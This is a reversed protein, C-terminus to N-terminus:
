DQSGKRRFPDIRITHKRKPKEFSQYHIFSKCTHTSYVNGYKALWKVIDKDPHDESGSASIYSKQPSLADIIDDNLNNRSGHHPVKLLDVNRLWQKKNLMKLLSEKSADGTFLLKKGDGPKYLVVLSSANNFSSGEEDGYQVKLLPEPVDKGIMWMLLGKYYDYSPWVIRIDLESHVRGDIANRVKVGKGKALEILNVDDDESKQWIKHIEETVKEKGGLILRDYYNLFKDPNALWLEDIKIEEDNLLGFFGGKHDNDPHTCIALNIHGSKYYKKLHDRIQEANGEHGADILVIYSQGNIYQRIIIADADEVKLMEYEYRIEKRQAM